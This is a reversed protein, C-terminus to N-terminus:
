FPNSILAVLFHEGYSACCTTSAQRIICLVAALNSYRWVRLVVICLITKSSSQWVNRGALSSVSLCTLTWHNIFFFVDSRDRKLSLEDLFTKWGQKLRIEWNLVGAQQLIRPYVFFIEIHLGPRGCDFGEESFVSGWVLWKLPFRSRAPSINIVQGLPFLSNQKGSVRM